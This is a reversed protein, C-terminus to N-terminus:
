PLEALHIAKYCATDIINSELLFCITKFIEVPIRKNWKQTVDNPSVHISTVSICLIYTYCFSQYYM